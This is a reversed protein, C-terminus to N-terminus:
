GSSPVAVTPVAEVEDMGVILDIWEDYPTWTSQDRGHLQRQHARYVAHFMAREPQEQMTSGSARCAEAGAQIDGMSLSVIAERGDVDTLRWGANV